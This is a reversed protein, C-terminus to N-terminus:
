GSKPYTININNQAYSDSEVKYSLAPVTERNDGKKYSHVNTEASCSILLIVIPVIILLKFRM